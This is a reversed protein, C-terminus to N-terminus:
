IIIIEQEKEIVKGEEKHQSNIIEIRKLLEETAIGRGGVLGSELMDLILMEIKQSVSHKSQDIEIGLKRSDIAAKLLRSDIAAKLLRNKRSPVSEWMWAGAKENILIDIVCGAAYIDIKKYDAREVKSPVSGFPPIYFKTGHCFTLPEEEMKLDYITDLDAIAAKLTGDDKKEILVNELKIDRHVLQQRHMENIGLIIDTAIYLKDQLTRAEKSELWKELSGLNYKKFLCHVKRKKDKGSYESHDRLEVIGPKGQLKRAVTVGIPLGEGEIRYVKRALIEPKAEYSLTTTIKGQFGVGIPPVSKSGLHIYIKKTQSNYEITRSLGTEHKRRYNEGSVRDGDLKKEIYEVIDSLQKESVAYPSDSKQIKSLTHIASSTFSHGISNM